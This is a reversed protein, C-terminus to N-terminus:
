NHRYLRGNAGSVEQFWTIHEVPNYSQWIKAKRQKKHKFKSWELWHHRKVVSYIIHQDATMCSGYFTAMFHIWRLKPLSRYIFTRRAEKRGGVYFKTKFLLLRHKTSYNWVKMRRLTLYTMGVYPLSGRLRFKTLNKERLDYM